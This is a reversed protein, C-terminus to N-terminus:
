PFLQLRWIPFSCPKCDNKSQSVLIINPLQFIIGFILISVTQRAWGHGGRMLKMCTKSLNKVLKISRIIFVKKQVGSRQRNEPSTIPEQFWCGDFKDSVQWFSTCVQVTPPWPQVHLVTFVVWNQNFTQCYHGVENSRLLFCGWFRPILTKSFSSKKHFWNEDYTQM